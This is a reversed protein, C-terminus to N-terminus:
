YYGHKCDMAECLVALFVALVKKSIRKWCTCRFVCSSDCHLRSGRVKSSAEQLEAAAAKVAADAVSIREQVVAGEEMVKEDEARLAALEAEAKEKDKVALSVPTLMYGVSGPPPELVACHLLMLVCPM